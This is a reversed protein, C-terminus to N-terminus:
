PPAERPLEHAFSHLVVAGALADAVALTMEDAAIGGIQQVGLEAASWRQVEGGAALRVISADQAEHVYIRGLRDLAVAQPQRLQGRGLTQLVRGERSVRHVVGRLRDLVVVGDRGAALADVGSIRQGGEAEPAIQRVVGGVGRHESWAAGVADAVLLTFGDEALAIAAPAGGAIGVRLTQLLRADRGFRLVQRTFPDLVWASLDPGLALATQRGVPAGAIGTVHLGYADARWLRGSGADAVLLDTGRLALAAPALWRVFQGSGAPLPLGPRVPPPLGGALVPALFGGQLTRLRQPQGPPPPPGVPADAACGAFVGLGAALLTRRHLGSM